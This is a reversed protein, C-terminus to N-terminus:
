RLAGSGGKGLHAQPGRQGAGAARCSSCAKAARFNSCPGRQWAEAAGTRVLARQRRRTQVGCRAEGNVQAARCYDKGECLTVGM